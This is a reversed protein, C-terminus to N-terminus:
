SLASRAIEGLQGAKRQLAKRDHAAARIESPERTAAWTELWAAEIEPSGVNGTAYFIRDSILV